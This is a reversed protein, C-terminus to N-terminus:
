RPKGCKVCRDAITTIVFPRTITCGKVYIPQFHTREDFDHQCEFRKRVWCIFRRLM